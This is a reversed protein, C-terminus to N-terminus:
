SIVEQSLPPRTDAATAQEPDMDVMALRLDAQRLGLGWGLGLSLNSLDVSQKNLGLFM